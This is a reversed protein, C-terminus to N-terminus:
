MIVFPHICSSSIATMLRYTGLILAGLYMFCCTYPFISLFVIIITLFKLVRNMDISLDKLFFILLTVSIRFSVIFCTSKISIKLVNCGFFVMICKRKLHVHFM